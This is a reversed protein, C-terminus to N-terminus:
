VFNINYKQYKNEMINILEKKLNEFCDYAQFTLWEYKIKKWFIEILNLEPCYPPLFLLYLDNEQEWQKIKSQFLNSRHIPANDLVVVTKKTTSQAFDDFIAVLKEANITTQEFLYMKRENNTQYFGALNIYKGRFSPLKITGVKGKPQWAYPVVPVLGFHSEDYFCLNLYDERALDSLAEIKKAAEEFLVVDRKSVVSKRM